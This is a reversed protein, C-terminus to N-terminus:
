PQAIFRALLAGSASRWELVDHDMAFRAVQPFVALFQQEQQMVGPDACM